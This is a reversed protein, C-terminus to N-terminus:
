ATRKKRRLSWDAASAWGDDIVMVLPGSGRLNRVPESSSPRTGIHGAGGAVHAAPDAVLANQVTTEENPRLAMLLRVPPFRGARPSPPTVRLLWWLAPLATLALLRPSAFDLGGLELM